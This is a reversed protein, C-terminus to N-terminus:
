STASHATARLTFGLSAGQYANADVGRDPWAVTIEYTVSAGPALPTPHAFELESLPGRYVAAETSRERVIVGLVEDLSRTGTARLDTVSVEFAGPLSGSNRLTLDSRQKPMGPYAGAVDFVHSSPGAMTGAAGALELRLTGSEFGPMPEADAITVAGVSVGAVLLAAGLITVAVRRIAIVASRGTEMPTIGTGVLEVTTTANM